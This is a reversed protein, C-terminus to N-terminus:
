SQIHKYIYLGSSLCGIHKFTVANLMLQDGSCNIIYYVTGSNDIIMLVHLCVDGNHTTMNSQPSIICFVYNFFLLFPRWATNKRHSWRQLHEHGWITCVKWVLIHIHTHTFVDIYM